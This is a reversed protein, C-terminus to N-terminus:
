TLGALNIPEGIGRVPVPGLPEFEAQDIQGDALTQASAVLRLNKEKAIAELRSAINVTRGLATFELRRDDGFAGVLASGAHLGGAIGIVSAEAARAANKRDVGDAIDRFARYANQAAKLSDGNLGFLIMAGDGVFKDVVGDHQEAADLVFSRFWLLIDAVQRAELSDTLETFGRLDIMLIAVDKRHPVRLLELADNSLDQRLEGPLFRRLNDSDEVEKAVRVVLRRSRYVATGIVLALTALIVFRMVNPPPSYLARMEDVVGAGWPQDLLPSHFTIVACIAILFVSTFIHLELRYRLAQVSLVLAIVLILPSALAVLSPTSADSVDIYLQCGLLAVELANFVWSHWFRFRSPHSFYYNVVGLVFYAAAGTLLFALEFKRVSLGATELQMLLGGVGVFLAASLIMRLIAILREARIDSVRLMEAGRNPGTHDPSM